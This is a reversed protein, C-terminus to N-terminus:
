TLTEVVLRAGQPITGQLRVQHWQCQYLLSDLPESLLSGSAVYAAQAPLCVIQRGSPDCVLPNGSLDFALANCSPAAVSGRL